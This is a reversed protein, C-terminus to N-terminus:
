TKSSAQRLSKVVSPNDKLFIVLKEFRAVATESLHHEIGDVEKAVEASSLGLMEFFTTLIHHRRRIKEAVSKGKPTLNMGRYREYSLFEEDALRQVMRTVTPQAIHLKEAIDVVRAYGKEEFLEYIRELYDEATQSPM